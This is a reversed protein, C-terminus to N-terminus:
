DKITRLYTNKRSKLINYQKNPKPVLVEKGVGFYIAKLLECDITDKTKELVPYLECLYQSSYKRSEEFNYDFVETRNIYEILDYAKEILIMKSEMIEEKSLDGCLYNMDKLTVVFVVTDIDFTREM